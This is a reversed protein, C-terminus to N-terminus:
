GRGVRVILGIQVDAASRRLWIRGERNRSMEVTNGGLGGGSGVMVEVAELRKELTGGVDRNM